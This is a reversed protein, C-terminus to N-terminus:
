QTQDGVFPGGKEPSITFKYQHALKSRQSRNRVPDIGLSTTLGAETLDGSETLALGFSGRSKQEVGKKGLQHVKEISM